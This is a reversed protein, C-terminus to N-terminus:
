INSNTNTNTNANANTNTNTNNTTNTNTNPPGGHLGLGPLLHIPVLVPVDPPAGREPGERGHLGGRHVAPRRAYVYIYIYLSLSICVYYMYIYTYVCM